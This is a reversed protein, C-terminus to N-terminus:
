GRRAAAGSRTGRRGAACGCCLCLESSGQREFSNVARHQATNHLPLRRPGSRGCSHAPQGLSHSRLVRGVRLCGLLCRPGRPCTLLAKAHSHHWGDGQSCDLRWGAPQAPACPGACSGLEAYHEEGWRRGVAPSRPRSASTCAHPWALSTPPTNLPSALCTACPSATSAPQAEHKPLTATWSGQLRQRLLLQRDTGDLSARHRHGTCTVRWVAWGCRISAGWCLVLASVAPDRRARAWSCLLTEPCLCCPAVAQLRPPRHATWVVLAPLTPRCLLLLAVVPRADALRLSACGSLM